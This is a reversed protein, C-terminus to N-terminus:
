SPVAVRPTPFEDWTRGGHQKAFRGTLPDRMEEAHHQGHESRSLVKLTEWRNDVKERTHHVIEEPSLPRGLATVAILDHLYAYGNPDAMPHSKGVQIKLYGHSSLTIGDRWRYHESGRRYNTHQGRRDETIGIAERKRRRYQGSRSLQDFPKLAMKDGM